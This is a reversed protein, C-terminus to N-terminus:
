AQRQRATWWYAFQLLDVHRSDPQVPEPLSNPSNDPRGEILARWTSSSIDALYPLLDDVFAVPKLQNLLEAKPNGRATPGVAYVEEVPMGLLQLNRKRAQAFRPDLATVCVLRAGNKVLLECAERAGPAAPMTSWTEEDFGKDYLHRVGAEDLWPVDWYDTPHYGNPNAVVPRQGFAKEWARAYGEHYDILVGDGDLAILETTM